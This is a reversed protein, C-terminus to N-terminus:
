LRGIADKVRERVEDWTREAADNWTPINYALSSTGVGFPRGEFGLTKAMANWRELQIPSLSAQSDCRFGVVHSMKQGLCGGGEGFLEQRIGLRCWGKDVERYLAELDARLQEPSVTMQEM